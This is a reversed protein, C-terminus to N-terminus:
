FKKFIFVQRIGNYGIEDAMPYKELDKYKIEPDHVINFKSDIIVAHITKDKEYYDPSAVSADFFGDVGKYLSLNNLSLEEPIDYDKEFLPINYLVKIFKYGMQYYFIEEIKNPEKYMKFHPVDQIKLEFLSAVSAQWCNGKKNGSITQYVRKM